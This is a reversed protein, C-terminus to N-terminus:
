LNLGSLLDDFNSTSVEASQGAPAVDFSVDPTSAVAEAAALVAETPTVVNGNVIDWKQKIREVYSSIMASDLEPAIVKSLDETRNSRFTDLTLKQTAETATWDAKNSVIMDYKQFDEHSCPGLVLDHKKLDYGEKALNRIQEFKQPGFVWVLVSVSFPDALDGNPKTSYKVVNLAYRPQPARFRDFQTSAKCAPCHTVDVGSQFVTEEDGLCQFSKVFAEDYAEFTGGDRKKKEVLVGKGNLIKPEYFQHVYVREPGELLAVRAKEGVKLKLKPFIDGGGRSAPSVEDTFQIRAM